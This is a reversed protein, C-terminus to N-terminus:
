WHWILTCYLSMCVIIEYFFRTPKLEHRGPKETTRSHFLLCIDVHAKHHRCCLLLMLCHCILNFLGPSVTPHIMEKICARDIEELGYLKMLPKLGNEDVLHDFMDISIQEHQLIVCRVTLINLSAKSQSQTLIFLVICIIILHTIRLLAFTVCCSINFQLVFEVTNINPM